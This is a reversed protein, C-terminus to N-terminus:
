KYGHSPFNLSNSIILKIKLLVVMKLRVFHVCKLEYGLGTCVEALLSGLLEAFLVFDGYHEVAACLYLEREFASEFGTFFDDLNATASTDDSGVQSHGVIGDTLEHVSWVDESDFEIDVAFFAVCHELVDLEVRDFIGYEVDVQEFYVILFGDGDFHRDLEFAVGLTDLGTTLQSERHLFDFDLSDVCLNGLTHDDIDVVEAKALSELDAVEVELTKFQHVGLVSHNTGNLECTGGATGLSGSSGSLLCYKLM